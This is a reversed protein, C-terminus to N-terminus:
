APKHENRRIRGLPLHVERVVEEMSNLPSNNMREWDGMIMEEKKSIQNFGSKSIAFM